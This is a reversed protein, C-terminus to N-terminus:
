ASVKSRNRVKWVFWGLMGSRPVCQGTAACRMTGNSELGHLPREFKFNQPGPHKQRLRAPRKLAVGIPVLRHRPRSKLIVDKIFGRHVLVALPIRQLGEGNLFLMFEHPIKVLDVGTSQRKMFGHFNRYLGFLRSIKRGCQIADSHPERGPCRSVSPQKQRRLLLPGHPHSRHELPDQAPGKTDPLHRKEQTGVAVQVAGHLGLQNRKLKKIQKLRKITMDYSQIM